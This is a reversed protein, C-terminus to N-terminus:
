PCADGECYLAVFLESRVRWERVSKRWMASYTGGTRVSGRTGAWTRSGAALLYEQSVEIRDPTRM